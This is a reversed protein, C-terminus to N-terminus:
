IMIKTIDSPKTKSTQIDLWQGAHTELKLLDYYLKAQPPILEDSLILSTDGTLIAKNLGLKKFTTIQGRRTSSNDMIDDHILAFAHFLELAQCAPWITQARGHCAKFATYCFFPRLRKGGAKILRIIESIAQSFQPALQKAQSKKQNLFGILKPDFQSKFQSLQTKILM